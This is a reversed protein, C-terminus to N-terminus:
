REILGAPGDLETELVYTSDFGTRKLEERIRLALKLNFDHEPMGRASIAGPHKATHGVDLLITVDKTKKLGCTQSFALQSYVVLWLAVVNAM